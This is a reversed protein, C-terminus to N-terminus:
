SSVNTQPRSSIDYKALEAQMKLMDEAPHNAVGVTETMSPTLVNQRVKLSKYSPAQTSTAM